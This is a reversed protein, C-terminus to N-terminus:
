KAEPPGGGGSTGADCACRSSPTQNGDEARSPTGAPAGPGDACFVPGGPFLPDPHRPAGRTFGEPM